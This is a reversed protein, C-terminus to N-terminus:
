HSKVVEPSILMPEAHSGPGPSVIQNGDTAVGTCDRIWIVRDQPVNYSAGTNNIKEGLPRIFRNGRITVGETSTVALNVVPCDELTNDEIVVNRFVGPGRFVPPKVGFTVSIAGASASWPAPCFLGAQRIVNKRIVLGDIGAAADGPVEPCVTLAHPMDLTNGEILGGAKILVRGSSHVKNNIFSFGNGMRDPSFVSTGAEFPADRDLTLVLCWKAVKWTSWQQAADLKAVIDPSLGAASRDLRKRATIVAEPGGLGALLKDGVFVGDMYDDRSAIVIERGDRKLVMYDSSQVSWSDDGADRIECGDVKPGRRITKSQMADWSSSLLREEVAGAPKPGPVVKCGLYQANGEGDCELIGMGPASFVSVNRLTVQDGHGISIAHPIGDSAQGTSLTILDGVKATQAIKPYSVRVTREGTMEAKSGWLFPMGKKRFRTTPDMIDVRSWPQAPYGDHLRVEVSGGDEASKIVTGQTFPLPDYDVTLGQLTFRTCHDFNVARTLKTSVLTVDDAIIEVDKVNALSWVVKGGNEPALVYRGPPIVIRKEGRAIAERVQPRFDQPEALASGAAILLLPLTLRTM